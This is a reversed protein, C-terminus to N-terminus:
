DEPWRSQAAFINTTPSHLQEGRIKALREGGGMRFTLSRTSKLAGAGCITAFSSQSGDTVAFAARYVEPLSLLSPTFIRSNQTETSGPDTCQNADAHSNVLYDPNAGLLQSLHLVGIIAREMNRTQRRHRPLQRTQHQLLPQPQTQPPPRPRVLRPALWRASISPLSSLTTTGSRTSGSATFLM